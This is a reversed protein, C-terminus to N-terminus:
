VKKFEMQTNFVNWIEMNTLPVIQKPNKTIYPHQKIQELNYRETPDSNTMKRVLSKVLRIIKISLFFFHELEPFDIPFSIKEKLKVNQLYENLKHNKEYFPHGGRSFFTYM